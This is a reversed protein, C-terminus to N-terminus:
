PERSLLPPLSCLSRQLPDASVGELSRIYILSPPPENKGPSGGLRQRRFAASQKTPILM